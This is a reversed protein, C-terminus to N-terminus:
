FYRQREKSLFFGHRGKRCTLGTRASRCTYGAARWVSGYALRPRKWAGFTETSPEYGGLLFIMDNGSRVPRAHASRPLHVVGVGDYARQTIYPAGCYLSPHAAGESALMCTVLGSPMKFGPGGGLFAAAPGASAATVALSVILGMVIRTRAM